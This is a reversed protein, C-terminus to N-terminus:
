CAVSARERRGLDALSLESKATMMEALCIGVISEAASWPPFGRSVPMSLFMGVLLQAFCSQQPFHGIAYLRSYEHQQEARPVTCFPIRFVKSGGSPRISGGVQPRSKESRGVAVSVTRRSFLPYKGLILLNEPSLVRETSGVAGEAM